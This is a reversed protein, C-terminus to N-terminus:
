TSGSAIRFGSKFALDQTKCFEMASKTNTRQQMSLVTHAATPATASSNSKDRLLM